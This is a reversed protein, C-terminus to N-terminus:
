HESPSATPSRALCCEYKRSPTERSRRTNHPALLNVARRSCSPACRLYLYLFHTSFTYRFINIFSYTCLIWTYLFLINWKEHEKARCIENAKIKQLANECKVTERLYNKVKKDKLIYILKKM